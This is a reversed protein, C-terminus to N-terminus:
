ERCVQELITSIYSRDLFQEPVLVHAGGHNVQVRHVLWTQGHFARSISDGRSMVSTDSKQCRFSDSTSFTNSLHRSINSSPTTTSLAQSPRHLTSMQQGDTSEPTVTQCRSKSTFAPRNNARLQQRIM